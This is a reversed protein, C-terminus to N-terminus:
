RIPLFYAYKKGLQSLIKLIVFFPKLKKAQLATIMIVFSRYIYKCKTSKTHIIVFLYNNAANLMVKRLHLALFQALYIQIGSVNAQKPNYVGFALIYVPQPLFIFWSPPPAFYLNWIQYVGRPLFWIRYSKRTGTRLIM